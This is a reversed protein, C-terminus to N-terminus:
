LTFVKLGQQADRQDCELMWCLAPSCCVPGLGLVWSGLWCGARRISVGM